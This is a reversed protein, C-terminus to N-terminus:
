PNTLQYAKQISCNYSAIPYIINSGKDNSNEICAQLTYTSGTLSYYYNGPPGLFISISSPDCPIKAIYTVTGGTLASSGPCPNTYIGPLDPPYSGQDAKYLEVASQIQRLDAKRQADRSRQRVSIFNALLLTALVGIIAIVILLEILTFGDRFNSIQFKFNKNLKFNLLKSKM